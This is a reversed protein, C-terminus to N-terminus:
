QKPKAYRESIVKGGRKGIERAREPDNKFNTPSTKGGMSQIERRREPSMAAIGRPKKPKDTL